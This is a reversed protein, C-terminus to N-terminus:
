PFRERVGLLTFPERTQGKWPCSSLLSFSAIGQIWYTPDKGKEIYVLPLVGAETASQKCGRPLPPLYSEGRESCTCKQSLNILLPSYVAAHTASTRCGPVSFCRSVCTSLECPQKWLKCHETTGIRLTQTKGPNLRATATSPCSQGARPGGADGSAECGWWPPVANSFSVHTHIASSEAILKIEAFVVWTYLAAFNNILKRPGSSTM